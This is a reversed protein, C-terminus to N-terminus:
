RTKMLFTVLEERSDKINLFPILYTEIYKTYDVWSKLVKDTNLFQEGNKERMFRIIDHFNFRYKDDGSYRLLLDEFEIPYGNGYQGYDFALYFKGNGYVIGFESIKEIKLDYKKFFWGLEKEIKKIEKNIM